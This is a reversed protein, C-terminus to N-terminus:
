AKLLVLDECKARQYDYKQNYVSKISQHRSIFKYVWNKRLTVDLSRKALLLMAMQQIVAQRPPM